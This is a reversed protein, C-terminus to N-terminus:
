TVRDLNDILNHALGSEVLAYRHNRRWIGGGHFNVVGLRRRLCIRFKVNCGAMAFEIAQYFVNM